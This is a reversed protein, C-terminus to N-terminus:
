SAVRRVLLLRVMDLFSSSPSFPTFFADHHCCTTIGKLSNENKRSNTGKVANSRITTIMAIKNSSNSRNNKATGQQQKNATTLNTTINILYLQILNMVTVTANQLEFLIIAMVYAGSLVAIVELMLMKRLAVAWNEAFRQM